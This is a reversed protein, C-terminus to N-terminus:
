IEDDSPENRMRFLEDRSIWWRGLIKVGIGRDRRWREITSASVGAEAVAQKTTLWRGDHVDIQGLAWPRAVPGSLSADIAAIAERLCELQRGIEGGTMADLVTQRDAPDPALGARVACAVRELADVLEGRPMARGGTM